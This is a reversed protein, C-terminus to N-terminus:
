RRPPRGQIEFCCRPRDGRDCCERAPVGVIEGVLSEMALCAGPHRATLAALPCAAGRIVFHGNREVRTTAGLRANLLDSVAAVRSALGGPVRRGGTLERALGRGAQRLLAELRDAPLADAVVDVLHSLLPVYARSLLQEVEPTLAFVHSPRTTGPRKGVRRVVGERELGAMQLRVASRTLGLDRAVDDSTMGGIKLLAVIRGRSTDLLQRLPDAM